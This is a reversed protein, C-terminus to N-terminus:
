EGQRNMGPLDVEAQVHPQEEEDINKTHSPQPYDPCLNIQPRRGTVNLPLPSWPPVSHSVM